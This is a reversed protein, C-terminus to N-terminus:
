GFQEIGLRAGEEEEEEEEDGYDGSEDFYQVEAGSLFAWPTTADFPILMM